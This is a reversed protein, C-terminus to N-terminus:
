DQPRTSRDRRPRDGFRGTRSGAPRSTAVEVPRSTPAALEAARVQASTPIKSMRTELQQFLQDIPENLKRYAEGRAQRDEMQRLADFEGRHLERYTDRQQKLERLISQATAQQAADLQYRRTFDEVFRDWRDGGFPGRERGDEDRGRPGRRDGRQDWSERWRQIQAEREARRQRGKSVQEEPLLPEIAEAARDPNTLPSDRWLERMRERIQGMREEDVPQGERHQEWMQRMERHLSEFEKLRPEALKAQAVKLEELKARVVEQQEATLDYDETFHRLRHEIERNYMEERQEPTMEWPAPWPGRGPGPGPGRGPGPGPGRGGWPQGFAPGAVLAIVLVLWGRSAGNEQSM